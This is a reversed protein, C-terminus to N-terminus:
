SADLGGLEKVRAVLREHAWQPLDLAGTLVGDIRHRVVVGRERPDIHVDTAGTAVARNVVLALLDDVAAADSAIDTQANDRVEVQASEPDEVVDVPVDVFPPSVGADGAGTSAVPAPYGSAISELLHSRTAVVQIIARGTLLALDKVLDPSMPDAAAVVL